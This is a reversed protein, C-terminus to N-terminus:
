GPPRLLRLVEEIVAEVVLVDDDGGGGADFFEVKDNLLEVAVEEEVVVDLGLAAEDDPSPVLGLMDGATVDDDDASCCCCCSDVDDLTTGIEVEMTVEVVTEDGIELGLCTVVLLPPLGEEIAEDRNVSFEPSFLFNAM